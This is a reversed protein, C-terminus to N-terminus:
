GTVGNISIFFDSEKFKEEDNFWYINIEGFYNVKDSSNSSFTIENENFSYKSRGIHVASIYNKGKDLKAFIYGSSDVTYIQQKPFYETNFQMTFVDTHRENNVFLNIKGAYYAEDSDKDLSKLQVWHTCSFMLLLSLLISKKM